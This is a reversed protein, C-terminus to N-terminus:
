MKLIRINHTNQQINVGMLQDNVAKVIISDIELSRFSAFFRM